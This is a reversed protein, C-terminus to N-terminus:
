KNPREPRKGKGPEYSGLEEEQKQESSTRRRLRRAAISLTLTLESTLYM